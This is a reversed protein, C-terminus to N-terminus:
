FINALPPREHPALAAYKDRDSRSIITTAVVDAMASLDSLPRNRHARDGLDTEAIAGIGWRACVDILIAVEVAYGEAFPVTRAASSRMAYEGSLPQKIASLEPFLMRLLPKATLETVRGGGTPQGHLARRYHAKVLQIAPDHFPEVLDRVIHPRPDILDADVFAVIDGRAAAVGRWLAEGKGPRPPLEPLVDRWNLVTAGAARAESATCDASDSDIVIVELPEDALVSEVVAAVTDEENLAPIIVSTSRLQSTM